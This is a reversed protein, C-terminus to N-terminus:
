ECNCSSFLICQLAADHTNYSYYTNDHLLMSASTPSYYCNLINQENTAINQYNNAITVTPTVSSPTTFFSLIGLALPLFQRHLWAMSVPHIFVTPAMLTIHQLPQTIFWTTPYSM